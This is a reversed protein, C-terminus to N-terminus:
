RHRNEARKIAAQFSLSPGPKAAKMQALQGRSVKTVDVTRRKETRQTKGSGM